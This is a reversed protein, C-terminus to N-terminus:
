SRDFFPLVFLNLARRAKPGQRYVATSAVLVDYVVTFVCECAVWSGDKHKIRCYNMVAAKDLSVGRGHISRGFPIEDPHFYEWCSKGTVEHPLYGLIDEISDSCYRIRADLSLDHITIFVTEM